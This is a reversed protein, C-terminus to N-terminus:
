TFEGDTTRALRENVTKFLESFNEITDKGLIDDTCSKDSAINRIQKAVLIKDFNGLGQKKFNEEYRKVHKITKENLDSIRIEGIPKEKLLEQYARNVAENYFPVGILDEIEIDSRKMEEPVIENLIIINKEDVHHKEKLTKATKRGSSDNDLIALFRLNEKQLFLLYNVMKNTGGAAVISITSFDLPEKRNEEFYSAMAELILYDSYGEVVLNRKDFILSDGITLGIAARIPELADFDSEHFKEKITTGVEHGEKKLIRVRNLHGRPILFPLHTSYVIQNNIAIRELTNLLDKQGSPHLFVGSDDLLLVTNKFEGKSGAMFNIYFALYWQFGKSRRSPENYAGVEDEVFVYLDNGDLGMKVQVQEQTWSKNIMGTIITSAYETDFRRQLPPSEKLKEINLGTLNALNHFTKYKPRNVLFDDIKVSDTLLHIQDFYIFSPVLRLIEEFIGTELSNKLNARMEQLIGITNEIAQDIPEDKNPLGRLGAYLSDFAKDISSSDNLDISFFKEEHENYQPLSSSFVERREANQELTASLDDVVSRIEKVIDGIDIKLDKFDCESSEILYQNNLHKTIRLSNIKGLEKCLKGLNKRDEDELRFWISVIEIEEPSIEDRELKRKADSYSCLDEVSYKYDRDFSELARLFNTKGSENKGILCLIRNDFNM